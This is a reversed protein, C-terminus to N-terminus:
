MREKAASFKVLFISFNCHAAKCDTVGKMAGRKRKIYILLLCSCLLLFLPFKLFGQLFLYCFMWWQVMEIKKKKQDKEKSCKELICIHHSPLKVADMKGDCLISLFWFPVHAMISPPAKKLCYQWIAQMLSVTGSHSLPPNITWSAINNCM